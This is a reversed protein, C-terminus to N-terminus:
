PQRHRRRRFNEHFQARTSLTKGHRLIFLRLPSALLCGPPGCWAWACALVLSRRALTHGGQQEDEVGERDETNARYIYSSRNKDWGIGLINGKYSKEFLFVASFQFQCQTM